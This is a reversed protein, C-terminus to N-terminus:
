NDILSSDRVLKTGRPYRGEGAVSRQLAAGSRNRDLSRRISLIRDALSPCRTTEVPCDGTDRRRISIRIPEFGSDCVSMGASVCWRWIGAGRRWPVEGCNSWGRSGARNWRIAALFCSSSSGVVIANDRGHHDSGLLFRAAPIAAGRIPLDGGRIRNAGFATFGAVCREELEANAM